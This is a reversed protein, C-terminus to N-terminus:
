NEILIFYVLLILISNYKSNLSLVDSALINGGFYNLLVLLTFLVRGSPNM